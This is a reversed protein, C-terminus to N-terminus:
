LNVHVGGSVQLGLVPMQPGGQMGGFIHGVVPPQAQGGRAM